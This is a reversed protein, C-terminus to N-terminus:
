QDASMQLYRKLSIAVLLRHSVQVGRKLYMQTLHLTIYSDPEYGTANIIWSGVFPLPFPAPFNPTSFHGHRATLFRQYVNVNPTAERNTHCHSVSRYSSGSAGISAVTELFVAVFLLLPLPPFVCSPLWDIAIRFKMAIPLCNGDNRWCETSM